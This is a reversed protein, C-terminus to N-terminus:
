PESWEKLKAKDVNCAVLAGLSEGAIRELDENTEIPDLNPERCFELLEEPPFQKEIVTKTM